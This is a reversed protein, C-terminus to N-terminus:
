ITLPNTISLSNTESDSVDIPSFTHGPTDYAAQGTNFIMNCNVPMGAPSITVEYTGTPVAIPPNTGSNAECVGEM